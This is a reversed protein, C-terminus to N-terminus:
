SRRQQNSFKEERKEEKKEVAEKMLNSAAPLARPAPEVLWVWLVDHELCFVSGVEDEGGV